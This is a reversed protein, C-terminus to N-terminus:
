QNGPRKVWIPSSWAMAVRNRVMGEQRLRVYYISDDQFGLDRDSWTFDLGDPRLPFIVKFGGDLKSSRLVEVWEIPATGHAEIKLLPAGASSTHQGMQTGNISFDLLIRAGTTGYTRRRYLGDFIEERTLGTARVAALGWHPQGPHSRHDDSAAITSVELGAMWADQAFQPGRVSRGAYTFDSQEFALPHTPDFAESLGHASYIEFNRRREPDHPQWLVPQPFKGPHHPVTLAEGATLAKWLEPLTVKKPALLPGPKGRFYVNHHGYPRGFSAEYAHLTVFNGPDNHQETLKTYEDWVHPGLGTTFGEEPVRSHDTMAYFDLGTVFRAYDFSGEGVGDWSYRTHSHLDGWYLKLPPEGEFVLMPNSHATLIRNRATARLRLLGAKRPTFKVTVWGKGPEFRATSPVDAQGQLVEFAVEERFATDANHNADLVSLHLEAPKGVVLTSPGVLMLDTVPGGFTQLTPRDPHLEFDGKGTANVALLVAEPLTSVISATMGRSGQSTDGYILSIEDGARLAGQTLTVRVVFVYREKRGDLGPRRSKVLYTAH